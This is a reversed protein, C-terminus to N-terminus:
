FRDNLFQEESQIRKKQNIEYNAVFVCSYLANLLYDMSLQSSFTSLKVDKSENLAVPFLIDALKGIHSDPDATLVILQVNRQKLIKAIHYNNKSEGSYSLLIACDNENFTNALHHDEGPVHASLIHYGIKMMRNQFNLAPIATDGYAFIGVHKATTLRKVCAELTDDSFLSATQNLSHISLERLKMTIDTYTDDESFPFDADVFLTEEPQHHLQSALQLKFDKFGKLGIKRCLRVISSTSSFTQLALDQISQHLIKEPDQLIQQAILKETPNFDSQQQLISLINM